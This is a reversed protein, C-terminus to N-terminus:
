SPKTLLQNLTKIIDGVTIWNCYESFPIHFYGKRLYHLEINTALEDIVEDTLKLDSKLSAELNLSVSKPVLNTEKIIGFVIEEASNM